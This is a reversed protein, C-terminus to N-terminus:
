FLNVKNQEADTESYKVCKRVFRNTMLIGSFGTKLVGPLFSLNLRKKLKRNIRTM